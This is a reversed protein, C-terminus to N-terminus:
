NSIQMESVRVLNSPKNEEIVGFLLKSDKFLVDKKALMLEQVEKMNPSFVFAILSQPVIFIKDEECHVGLNQLLGIVDAETYCGDCFAPLNLIVLIADLSLFASSSADVSVWHFETTANLHNEIQDGPTLCSNGADPVKVKSASRLAVAASAGATPQPKQSADRKASSPDPNPKKDKQVEPPPKQTKLTAQAGQAPDTVPKHPATKVTQTLLQNRSPKVEEKAEASGKAEIQDTKRTDKLESTKANKSVHPQINDKVTQAEQKKEPVTEIGRQTTKASEQVQVSICVQKELATSKSPVIKKGAENKDTKEVIKIEAESVNEKSAQNTKTALDVEKGAVTIDSMEGSGQLGPQTNKDAVDAPPLQPGSNVAQTKTWIDKNDEELNIKLKTCDNIRRKLSKASEVCQVNTWIELNSAHLNNEVVQTVGSSDVMEICVRNALPLFSVIPAISTVVKLINIILCVSIESVVVILLREELSELEPVHANSWKMMNRYMIDESFGSPMEQLVQHLYLTCDKISAPSKLFDGVFNCCSPWDVFHVFARRQLPLVVINYLLTQLNQKRFYSWVLKAIDEHKYNGEPLRTLMITSSKPGKSAPTWLDRKTKITSFNPIIFWPSATPFIFPTTTMTVSFPPTSGLPVGVSTAPVVPGAAVDKSDPMAKSALRPPLSTSTHRPLKMRYIKHAPCRKLLSYWVGIRDADRVSEFEIFVKNLLPLFNKVCDIKTLTERLDRVEAPSINQIYVTSTGDDAVPFGVLDM